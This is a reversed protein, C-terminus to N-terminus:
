VNTEWEDLVYMIRQLSDKFLQCKNKKNKSTAIEQMAASIIEYVENQVQGLSKAGNSDIIMEPEEYRYKEDFWHGLESIIECLRGAKNPKTLLDAYENQLETIRRNCHAIYYHNIESKTLKM